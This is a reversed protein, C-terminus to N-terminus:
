KVKLVIDQGVIINLYDLMAKMGHEEEALVEMSYPPLLSLAVKRQQKQIAISRIFEILKRFLRGSVHNVYVNGEEDVEDAQVQWQGSACRIALQCAPFVALLAHKFLCLREGRVNFSLLLNNRDAEETMKGSDDVPFTDQIRHYAEEIRMRILDGQVGSAKIVADVEEVLMNTTKRGEENPPDAPLRSGTVAEYQNFLYQEVFLLELLLQKEETCLWDRCVQLEKEVALVKDISEIMRMKMDAISLLSDSADNAALVDNSVQDVITNAAAVQNEKGNTGIENVAASVPPQQYIINNNSSISVATADSSSLVNRVIAKTIEASEKTEEEVKVSYVELVTWTCSIVSTLSHFGAKTTQTDVYLKPFCSNSAVGDFRLWTNDYRWKTLDNYLHFYSDVWWRFLRAEGTSKRGIGGMVYGDDDQLICLIGDDEDSVNMRKSENYWHRNITSEGLEHSGQFIPTLRCIADNSQVKLNGKLAEYLANVMSHDCLKRIKTGTLGRINEFTLQDSLFPLQFHKLMNQYDEFIVEPIKPFVCAHSNHTSDQQIYADDMQNLIVIMIDSDADLYIGHKDKYLYKEWRPNMLCSLLNWGTPNDVVIDRPIDYKKGGINLKLTLQRGCSNNDLLAKIKAIFSGRKIALKHQSKLNDFMWCYSQLISQSADIRKEYTCNGM